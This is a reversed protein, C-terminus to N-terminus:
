DSKMVAAFFSLKEFLLSSLAQTQDRGPLLHSQLACASYHERQAGLGLQCGYWPPHALSRNEKYPATQVGGVSSQRATNWRDMKFRHPAVGAKGGLGKTVSNILLSLLSPSSQM